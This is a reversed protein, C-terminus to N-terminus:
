GIGVLLASSSNILTIPMVISIAGLAYLNIWKGVFIADVFQYLGIAMMGMIAPISFKILLKSM